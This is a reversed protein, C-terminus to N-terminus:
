YITCPTLKNCIEVSIIFFTGLEPSLKRKHCIALFKFIIYLLSSCILNQFMRYSPHSGNEMSSAVANDKAFSENSATMM